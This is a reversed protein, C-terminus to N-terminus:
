RESRAGDDLLHLPQSPGPLIPAAPAEDVAAAVPSDPLLVGTVAANDRIVYRAADDVQDVTVAAIRAPWAEVDAITRGTALAAGFINAPGSLSDRAYVAEAIMRTKAREVEEGTVGKVILTKIESEVASEVEAVSHEGRPVAYFGFTTLDLSGPDYYAGASQAVKQEVVLARNLRSTAGSGVIQALVELAYAHRTEGGTYSPALFSRTWSAQAVRPSRFELRATAVHPPEVLRNRPPVARAPIPGYYQEALPRLQAATIDGAVVLIANNPAYWGRYHALADETSLKEMEHEWGITPIRYPHNLYIATHVQENLLAAPNNDIRSRREEIIVEREPLVVADSIQLNAMRDAELKMVLPLRDVAVTQFYATYDESTFANDRGGNQAVLRSFVGPPVDKTGRFMLHELFHAIGSKGRPEDAGGVKYWVMQTVVPARHNPIIVVQLGNALTFGEAGFGLPAGEQAAGPGAALVALVVLLAFTRSRPM